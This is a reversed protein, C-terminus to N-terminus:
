FWRSFWGSIQQGIYNVTNKIDNVVNNWQDQWNPKSPQQPEQPQSPEQPQQGASDNDSVATRAAALARIQSVSEDDLTFTSRGVGSYTIKINTLSLIASDSGTNTIVVIGDQSGDGNSTMYITNTISNTLNNIVEKIM